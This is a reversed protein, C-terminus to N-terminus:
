LDKKFDNTPPLTVVVTSTARLAKDQANTDMKTTIFKKKNGKHVSCIDTIVFSPRFM